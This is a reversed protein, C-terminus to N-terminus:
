ESVVGGELWIWLIGCVRWGLGVVNGFGWFHRDADEKAFVRLTGNSKHRRGVSQDEAM